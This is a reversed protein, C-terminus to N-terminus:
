LLGERKRMKLEYDIDAILKDGEPDKDVGARLEGLWQKLEVNSLRIVRPNVVDIVMTCALNFVNEHKPDLGKTDTVWRRLLRQIMEGRTEADIRRLVLLDRMKADVEAQTYTREAM